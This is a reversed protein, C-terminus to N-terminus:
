EAAEAFLDRMREDEPDEAPAWSTFLPCDDTVRNKAMDAYTTSLDIGIAHRQLRDAVLLTTGSGAFPDLVTCPVPHAPLFPGYHEIRADCKCSASWGTTRLPNADLQAQYRAGMNRKTRFAPDDMDYKRADCAQPQVDRESNRVYPAGCAACCGRESTGARICREVLEPPYTAFHASPFAHTAITWVNRCARTAAIPKQGNAKLGDKNHGGTIDSIYGGQAGTIDGARVAPEAIAAGDFYYRPKKTLMFIHEHASVCRDTVSEPMPNPKAWIIDSRVWWGDAQLALALRAPMMLLDKEKLGSWGRRRSDPAPKGRLEDRGHLAQGPGMQARFNNYSDGLNIWCTADDRLVRWVQRYVGVMTELYEDPSSELGIEGNESGV